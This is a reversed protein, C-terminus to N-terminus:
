ERWYSQFTGRSKCPKIQESWLMSLSCPFGEEGIVALYILSASGARFLRAHWELCGIEDMGGSILFM